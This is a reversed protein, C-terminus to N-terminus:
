RYTPAEEHVSAVHSVYRALAFLLSSLRNVYALTAPRVTRVGEEHVAVVRREATRIITRSIDLLASLYTGGALSFTRIPPMAAELADIAHELATVKAMSIRKPAGAVEAQVIFLGQQMERLLADLRKTRKGLLVGVGQERAAARCLGLYSNAEDLAGLAEAIASTKSLRQDCGFIRTTGTDGTRTYLM